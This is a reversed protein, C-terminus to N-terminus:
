QVGYVRLYPFFLCSILLLFYSVLLLFVLYVLSHSRTPIRFSQFTFPTCRSATAHLLLSSCETSVFILSLLCSTLLLFYSTLLLLYSVLLLLYSTLPLFYSTLLLLCSTLCLSVLSPFRIRLENKTSTFFRYYRVLNIGGTGYHYVAPYNM